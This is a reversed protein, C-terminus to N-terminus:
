WYAIAEAIEGLHRGNWTVDALVPLSHTRFREPFAVDIEVSGRSRPPVTITEQAPTITVGEVSRFHLTCRSAQTEHNTVTVTFTRTQGPEIRVKYPSLEVWRPDVGMDPHPQATVSGLLQQWQRMWDQWRGVKDDVAVCGAHGTLLFDAKADLIDRPLDTYRTVPTRNKPIFSYIFDRHEDFAMGSVRDGIALFKRGDVEFAIRQSYLTQGPCHEIHFRIGRWEFPRDAAVTRSVEIGEPLLCPMDFREPHELIDKLEPCSLVRTGYRAKLCPYGALHDDHYHSCVFWEVDHIQLEDALFGTLNDIFRHPNAAILETAVFGCDILTAHGHDDRVIFTSASANAVEIVHPTITRFHPKFYEYPRAHFLEYLKELKEILPALCGPETAFPEGHGPLILDVDLRSIFRLSELLNAHGIFNMYTWQTTYYEWLRDPAALVDGAALIRKGDIEFLYGVSGFTHGPLPVVDFRIDEWCVTQYDKAYDDARIDGVPGFAPYYSTYSDYIDYSARLLDAEELFRRECFPVVMRAGAQQLRPAAACQDRHFHTLVVTDVPMDWQGTSSGTDILCLKGGSTVGYVSCTDHLFRLNDSVSKM